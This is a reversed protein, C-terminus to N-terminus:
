AVAEATARPAGTSATVPRQMIGLANGFPDVLVAGRYGGGFERVEERVAAGRALLDALAADVDEVQWYTVTGGPEHEASGGPAYTLDLIGLEHAHPGLRWEVYEDRVFYPEAGLLDAYWTRAAALDAAHLRVTSVGSTFPPDVPKWVPMWPLDPLGDRAAVLSYMTAGDITERVIDGHGAHRSLEEMLHWWVWRVSWAEVDKPFWPADPVPVPTDLDLRRVADIVSASVEDYAALLDELSDTERFIFGELHDVVGGSADPLEPAAEASALWTHQVSTVHKVLGGVSLTSASPALAAQRPTLGHLIARFSDQAQSLFAAIADRENAVPPVHLAM